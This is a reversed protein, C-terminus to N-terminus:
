GRDRGPQAYYVHDGPQYRPGSPFPKPRRNRNRHETVWAPEPPDLVVGQRMVEALYEFEVWCEDEPGPDTGQEEAVRVYESRAKRLARVVVDRPILVYASSLSRGM